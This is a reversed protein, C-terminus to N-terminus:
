KIKSQRLVVAADQYQYTELSIGAIKELKVPSLEHHLIKDALEAMDTVTKLTLPKAEPLKEQQRHGGYFRFSAYPKLQTMLALLSQRYRSLCLTGPMWMWAFAGSGVADGLFVAEHFADILAISGPTHGFAEVVKIRVGGLDLIEGAEIPLMKRVPMKKYKMKFMLSGAAVCLWLGKKWYKKENPHVYVTEFLDAHYMHDIHAHTLVLVVPLDTLSRIVSMLDEKGMGTDILLAKNEGIILYMSDGYEDDIAYFGEKIKEVQYASM